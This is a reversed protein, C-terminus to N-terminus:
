GTEKWKQAASRWEELSPYQVPRKRKWKDECHEWYAWTSQSYPERVSFFILADLWCEQKARAFIHDHIWELLLLPLPSTQKPRARRCQREFELFHPCREQLVRNIWSPVDGEAEVIARVWFSFSEWDLYEQQAQSFRESSVRLLQRTARRRALEQLRRETKGPHWQNPKTRTRGIRQKVSLSMM